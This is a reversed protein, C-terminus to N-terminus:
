YCVHLPIRGPRTLSIEIRWRGEFCRARLDHRSFANRLLEWHNRVAGWCDSFCDQYWKKMDESYWVLEIRRDYASHREVDDFLPGQIIQVEFDDRPPCDRANDAVTKVCFRVLDSMMQSFLTWGIAPDVRLMSKDGKEKEAEAEEKKEKKMREKEAEYEDEEKRKRQSKLRILHIPAKLEM